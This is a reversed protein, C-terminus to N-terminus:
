TAPKQALRWDAICHFLTAGTEVGTCYRQNAKSIALEERRVTTAGTEVPATSFAQRVRV